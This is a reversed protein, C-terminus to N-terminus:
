RRLIAADVRALVKHALGLTFCDKRLPKVLQSIQWGAFFMDMYKWEFINSWFDSPGGRVERV